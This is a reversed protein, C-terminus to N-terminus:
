RILTVEGKYIQNNSYGARSVIINYFYVGMDQPQSNFSGDWGEDKNSTSFVKQGWRNYVSFEVLKQYKLFTPRFIDNLGDGNPTFGSPVFENMTSDVIITLSASDLCGYKDMGYVTYTTTVSPSAVPNNINNNTLTGDNPTWMYKLENSSYLQLKDGFKITTSGTVNMLKAGLISHINVVLQTPCATFPQAIATVTYTYDGYGMFYPMKINDASLNTAPTWQYTYNSFAINPKMEVNINIPMPQLLCLTTDTLGHLQPDIVVVERTKVSPCGISDIATLTVPYIGPVTYTHSPGAIAEDASGDGFSWNWSVIVGSGAGVTASSLDVLNTPEVAVCITDNNAQFDANVSHRTDVNATKTDTCHANQSTISAAYLNHLHYAHVISGPAGGLVVPGSGDGFNWTYTNGNTSTNTFLVTDADCGRNIEYTFNAITGPYVFTTGTDRCGFSSVAIVTYLGTDAFAFPSIVPNQLTSSFGGPGSWSYTGGPLFPSVSLNLDAAIPACMPINSSVLLDPKEHIIVRTSDTDHVTGITRVVYYLGSDTYYAPYKFPNQLTSFLATSPAPGYWAYTAGLSDGRMGLKLTDGFCPSNNWALNCPVVTLYFVKNNCSAMGTASDTGTITYTTTGPLVTINITNEVGTTTALGIAPAWTWVGKTWCKEAGFKISIHFTDIGPFMCTNFTDYEPNPPAVSPYTVPGVVLQPDLFASDIGQNGNFVYAYSIVAEDGPAINGINYVLGIGIDGTQTGNLAYVAPGYTGAWITALDVTGSLPWSNYIFAKARCDRTALALYAAGPYVTGRGSVMVRHTADENQHVVTNLTTFMGGPWSQDNDPDTTRLYYVSPIATVGINKMFTTVVVWSANLDVRTEQRIQLNGGSATGTWTGTAIGGINTYASNSGTLTGGGPFTGPCVLSFNGQFAQNRVGNIQLEWGEFPTGPLTYDGMYPPSGVAWGDHGYDYVEAIGTTLHPHYGAPPAACTGFAGNGIQGIELYNGQLFLNGGV